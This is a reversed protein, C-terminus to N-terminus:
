SRIRFVGFLPSTRYTYFFRMGEWMPMNDYAHEWEKRIKEWLQKCHTSTYIVGSM